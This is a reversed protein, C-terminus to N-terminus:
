RSRSRPARAGTSRNRRVRRVRPIAGGVPTEHARQPRGFSTTIGSDNLILELDVPGSPSHDDALFEALESVERRRAESLANKRAVRESTRLDNPPIATM